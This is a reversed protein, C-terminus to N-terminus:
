TSGRGLRRGIRLVALGLGVLVATGPEPITAIRFGTHSHASPTTDGQFTASLNPDSATYFAGGRLVQLDGVTAENWEWVNGGQDFTGSPSQAEAYSGVVTLDGVVSDCNAINSGPSPAACTTPLDNGYAYDYYVMSTADYYAAKYWEDESTVFSVAGENRAISNAAIGEATITYAGDETTAGGQEGVPQGNHVWNAFRMSNVFSVYNVPM